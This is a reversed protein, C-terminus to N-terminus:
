PRSSRSSSPPPYRLTVVFDRALPDLPAGDVEIWAHGELDPPDTSDAKAARVGMVFAADVGARRLVAYRALSRYLCTRPVFPVLNTVRDAADIWRELPRRPRDTGSSLAALLPELGRRELLPKACLRLVVYGAAGLAPDVLGPRTGAQPVTM